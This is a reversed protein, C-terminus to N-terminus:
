LGITNECVGGGRARQRIDRPPIPPLLAGGIDSGVGVGTHCVWSHCLWCWGGAAPSIWRLQFSRAPVGASFGVKGSSQGPALLPVSPSGSWRCPPLRFGRLACKRMVGEPPYHRATEGDPSVLSAGDPGGLVSMALRHRSARWRGGASGPAESKALPPTGDGRQM